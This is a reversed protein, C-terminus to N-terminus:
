LENFREAMWFVYRNSSGALIFLSSVLMWRAKM